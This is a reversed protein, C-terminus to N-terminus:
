PLLATVVAATVAGAACMIALEYGVTAASVGAGVALVATAGGFYMGLVSPSRQFGRRIAASAFLAALAFLFAAVGLWILSLLEASPERIPNFRRGVFYSFSALLDSFSLTLTGIAVQRVVGERRPNPV